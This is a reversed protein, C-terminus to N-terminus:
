AHLLADLAVPARRACAAPAAVASRRSPRRRLCRLVREPTGLDSWGLRPVRLLRLAATSDQLIDRSFDAAPLEDYLDSWASERDRRAAARFAALVRPQRREYLGLLAALRAAMIFSSWLAGSAMLRAAREAVPKEVFSAISTTLSDAEGGPVIWGYETEPEEPEIGLLVLEGPRRAAARQARRLAVRLGRENEFAHDSPLVLLTAAPAERLVTMVGLLLGNATGLNRPQVAVHGAPLGALEPEWLARHQEAVVVVVRERPVVREARALTEALLSRDSCFSCYQKPVHTGEGTATLSRLRLGDGAALVLAWGGDAHASM